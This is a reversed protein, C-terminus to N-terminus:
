CYDFRFGSKKKKHESSCITVQKNSPLRTVGEALDTKREKSRELYINESDLLDVLGSVGTM